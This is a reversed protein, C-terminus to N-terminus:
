SGYRLTHCMYRLSDIGHDDQKLPKPEGVNAVRSHEDYQYSQLERILNVCRPHITLLRVGNGDCILRRTNKIGESVMHTAGMTPIQQEHIRAKFEAASSDVYAIDPRAYPRELVNTLTRESLEQTAYYEDFINMGGLATVQGFLVVRPHYSQTGPGAGYAYGDDVGWAVARDLTYEAELTVNLAEDFNDFVVGEAQVWLGHRLRQYRVGTLNELADLYTRGEVTWEHTVPDYLRPNDEHKCFILQTRGDDCRRKLWHKPFSPNTDAAMQQYPMKGNRLRTTLSEWEDLTLEIAEPIYIMDFETSMIRTPNDMGGLVLESGNPYRYAARHERTPGAVLPSDLGLVHQEFTVLASQSLSARTKRLILGRMGPYKEANYHLKQLWARTKGTGAAGSLLVEREISNWAELNSGYPTYARQRKAVRLGAITAKALTAPTWQQQHRQM